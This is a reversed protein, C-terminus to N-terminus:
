FWLTVHLDARYVARFRWLLLATLFLRECYLVGLTDYHASVSRRDGALMSRDDAVKSLKKKLEDDEFAPLFEYSSPIIHKTCTVTIFKVAIRKIM